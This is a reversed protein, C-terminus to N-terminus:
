NTFREMRYYVNDKILILNNKDVFLIISGPIVYGKNTKIAIEIVTSKQISLDSFSIGKSMSGLTEKELTESNILEEQIRKIEFKEEDFSLFKEGYEICLGALNYADLNDIVKDLIIRESIIWKGEICEYNDAYCLFSHFIVLLLISFYRKM